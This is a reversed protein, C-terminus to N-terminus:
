DGETGGTRACLYLLLSLLVVTLAVAYSRLLFSPEYVPIPLSVRLYRTRQNDLHFAISLRPVMLEQKYRPTPPSGVPTKVVKWDEATRRVLAREVPTKEPAASSLQNLRLEAIIGKSKSLEEFMKMFIELLTDLEARDVLATEAPLDHENDKVKFVDGLDARLGTVEEVVAALTARTTRAVRALYSPRREFGRPSPSPTEQSAIKELSASIRSLLPSLPHADIPSFPSNADLTPPMILPEGTIPDHPHRSATRAPPPGTVTAGSGYRSHTVPPAPSQSMPFPHFASTPEPAVIIPDTQVGKSPNNPLRSIRPPPSLFDPSELKFPPSSPPPSDRSALSSQSQTASQIEVDLSVSQFSNDAESRHTNSSIAHRLQEIEDHLVRVEQHSDVITRRLDENEHQISQNELTLDHLARSVEQHSWGASRVLTERLAQLKERREQEVDDSEVEHPPWFLEHGERLAHLESQLRAALVFTLILYM